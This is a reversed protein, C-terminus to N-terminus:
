ERVIEDKNGYLACKQKNLISPCNCCLMKLNGTHVTRCQCDIYESRKVESSSCWHLSLIFMVGLILMCILAAIISLKEKM